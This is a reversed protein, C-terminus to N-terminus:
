DIKFKYDLYKVTSGEINNLLTLNLILNSSVKDPIGIVGRVDYTKDELPEYKFDLYSLDLGYTKQTAYNFDTNLLYWNNNPNHFAIYDKNFKYDEYEVRPVFANRFNNSNFSSKGKFQYEATFYLMKHGSGGILVRDGTKTTPTFFDAKNKDSKDCDIGNVFEVSKLKYIFQETEITDGVQYITDQINEQTDNTNTEQKDKSAFIVIGVIAIIVIAIPIIIMLKSKKKKEEM